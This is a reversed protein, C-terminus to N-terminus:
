SRQTVPFTIEVVGPIGGVFFILFLDTKLM